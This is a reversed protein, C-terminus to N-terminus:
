SHNHITPVGAHPGWRAEKWSSFRDICLQNRVDRLSKKTGRQPLQLRQEDWKSWSSRFQVRSLEIGQICKPVQWGGHKRGTARCNPVSLTNCSFMCVCAYVYIPQCVESRELDM